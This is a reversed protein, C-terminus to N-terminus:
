RCDSPLTGGGGGGSMLRSMWRKRGVTVPFSNFFVPIRLRNSWRKIQVSPNLACESVKCVLVVHHKVGGESGPDLLTVLGAPATSAEGGWSLGTYWLACWNSFMIGWELTLSGERYRPGEVQDSCLEKYQKKRLSFHIWVCPAKTNHICWRSLSSFASCPWKGNPDLPPEGYFLEWLSM